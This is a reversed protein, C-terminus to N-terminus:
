VIQSSQLNTLINMVHCNDPFCNPKLLKFALAKFIKYFFSVAKQLMGSGTIVIFSYGRRYTENM